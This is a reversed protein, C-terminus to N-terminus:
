AASGCQGWSEYYVMASGVSQVLPGSAGMPRLRLDIRFVFGDETVQGMAHIIQKGITTFFERPTTKGKRGGSSEGEDEEYLFIVDIDSSFNLEEGGLKGMGLIVFGNPVQKGPLLLVGFEKEVEARCFRYAAELSAEALTTLERVTEEMTVSPLLDRAGIRLYERQKHRRLAASFDDLSQSDKVVLKLEALHEAVSKEKVKTRRLFFKPWDTGQRILIDSLYASAGLLRALAAL